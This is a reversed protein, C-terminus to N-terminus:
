YNYFGAIRCCKKNEPVSYRNIKYTQCLSPTSFGWLLVILITTKETCQQPCPPTHERLQWILTHNKELHDVHNKALFHIHVKLHKWLQSPCIQHYTHSNDSPPPFEWNHATGTPYTGSLLTHKRKTDSDLAPYWFWGKDRCSTDKTLVNQSQFWRPQNKGKIVDVKSDSAIWAIQNARHSKNMFWVM